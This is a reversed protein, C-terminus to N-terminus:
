VTGNTTPNNLMGRAPREITTEIGDTPTIVYQIVDEGATNQTKSIDIIGSAEGINYNARTVLASNVLEKGVTYESDSGTRKIKVNATFDTEQEPMNVAVTEVIGNESVEYDYINQGNDQPRLIMKVFNLDDIMLKFEFKEEDQVVESIGVFSYNTANITAVGSFRSEENYGEYETDANTNLNYGIAKNRNTRNVTNQNAMNKETTQNQRITNTTNNPTDYNQLRNTNNQMTNTDNNLKTNTRNITQNQRTTNTTNNPTDYNQLRNATNNITKDNKLRDTNNQMTNTNNNLKTNTNNITQNNNTNNTLRNTQRRTTIDVRTPTATDQNQGVNYMFTMDQPQDGLFDVSLQKRYTYGEPIQEDTTVNVVNNSQAEVFPYLMSYYKNFTDLDTEVNTRRANIRNPTLKSDRKQNFIVNANQRTNTREGNINTGQPNNLTATNNNIVRGNPKNLVANGQIVKNTNNANQRTAQTNRINQRTAQTNQGAIKKADPMMSQNNTNTRNFLGAQQADQELATLLAGTSYAAYGMLEDDAVFGTTDTFLNCGTLAGSTMFILAILLVGVKKMSKM